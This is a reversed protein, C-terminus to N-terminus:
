LSDSEGARVFVYAPGAGPIIGSPSPTVAPATTPTTPPATTNTPIPTTDLQPTPRTFMFYAFAVVVGLVFMGAIIGLGKAFSLKGPEPEPAAKAAGRGGRMARPDRMGPSGGMGPRGRPGLDEDGWLGGGQPARRPSGAGGRGRASGDWDDRAPPRGGRMSRDGSRDPSGGRGGRPDDWDGRSAGAARGRGGAPGRGGGDWDGGADDRRPYRSGGGPAPARDWGGVGGRANDRGGRSGMRGQRVDDDARRSRPSRGQEWRSDDDWRGTGM